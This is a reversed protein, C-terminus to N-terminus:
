GPSLTAEVDMTINGDYFFSIGSAFKVLLVNTKSIVYFPNSTTDFQLKDGLIGNEEIKM